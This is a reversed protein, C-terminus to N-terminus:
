CVQVCCSLQYIYCCFNEVSSIISNSPGLDFVIELLCNQCSCIQLSQILFCNKYMCHLTSYAGHQTFTIKSFGGRGSFQYRRKTDMFTGCLNWLFYKRIGINIDSTQGMEVGCCNKFKFVNNVAKSIWPTAGSQMRGTSWMASTSTTGPKLWNYVEGPEM